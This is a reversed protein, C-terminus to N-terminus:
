RWRMPKMYFYKKFMRNWCDYIMKNCVRETIISIIFITINGKIIRSENNNDYLYYLDYLYHHFHQVIEQPNSINYGRNNIYWLSKLKYINQGMNAGFILVINQESWEKLTITWAYEKDKSAFHSTLQRFHM